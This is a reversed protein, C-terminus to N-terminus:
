ARKEGLLIWRATSGPIKTPENWAFGVLTTKSAELASTGLMLLLLGNTAVLDSALHFLNEQDDVARMAVIDFQLKLEEARGHFVDVGTVALARVAERLFMAKKQQSEALTVQLSPLAIKIPLGPFGAGSGLDLLKIRSGLKAHLLEAAFLSEGFHRTVIEEPQRVATLNMKGNWKLLLELYTSFQAIQQDTLPEPYFPQLLTQADVSKEIRRIRHHKQADM